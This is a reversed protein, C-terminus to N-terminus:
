PEEYSQKIDEDKNVRKEDGPFPEKKRRRNPGFFDPSKVFPRPHDIVHQIRQALKDASVPKVMVENAGSDRAKEVLESSTYASCVIVPMFRIAEKEHERIWKLLDAGSIEPMLWDLVLVDINNPNEIGNNQLILDKAKAGGDARIVKGVGMEKLSSAILDTIFSFDDVTLVKFASLDYTQENEAPKDKDDGDKGESAEEAAEEGDTNEETPTEAQEPEQDEDTM